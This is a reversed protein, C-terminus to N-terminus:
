DMLMMLRHNVFLFDTFDMLWHYMLPMLLDDM